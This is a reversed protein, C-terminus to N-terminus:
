YGRYKCRFATVPKTINRNNSDVPIYQDPCAYAETGGMADIETESFGTNGSRGPAIDLAGSHKGDRSVWTVHVRDTCNNSYALWNYSKSDYFERICATATNTYPPPQAHLTARMSLVCVCLLILRKANSM